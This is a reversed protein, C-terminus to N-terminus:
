STGTAEGGAQRPCLIEGRIRSKFFRLINFYSESIFFRAFIVM